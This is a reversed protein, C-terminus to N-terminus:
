RGASWIDPRQFMGEDQSMVICVSFGRSRLPAGTMKGVSVDAVVEQHRISARGRVSQLGNQKARRCVHKSQPALFGVHDLTVNPMKMQMSQEDTCRLRPTWMENTRDVWSSVCHVHSCIRLMCSPPLLFATLREDIDSQINKKKKRGQHGNQQRRLRREEALVIEGHVRFLLVM